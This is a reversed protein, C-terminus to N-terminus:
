EKLSINLGFSALAMGNWENKWELRQADFMFPIEEAVLINIIRNRQFM